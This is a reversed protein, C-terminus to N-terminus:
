VTLKIIAKPKKCLFLPNSQSELEIGKRMSLPEQQAYYPMGMTNVTDTYDAPAFRAIYLDPSGEPFAFAEDDHVFKISGVKGRYREFVLGGFEFSGRMDGRLEAAHQTNLYTEKVAKHVILSRWFNHGCIVRGHSFPMAGLADEILTSVDDCKLRLENDQKALDFKVVSQEIGFRDLLNVLPRKGDADLILGKLAGLRQWEHTIDMQIRMKKIRNTVVTQLAALDTQGGWGRVNQIEDATITARQPLHLTNFPLMERKSGVVVQGPSGRQAAEVLSFSDGDKEIQITTTQLGEEDFLNLDGLRSPLHPIDNIVGTLTSLSFADDDFLSISAM